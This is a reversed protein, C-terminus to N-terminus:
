LQEKHRSPLKAKVSSLRAELERRKQALAEEEAVLAYAKQYFDYASMLHENKKRAALKTKQALEEEALGQAILKDVQAQLTRIREEQLRIDKQAIKEAQTAIVKANQERLSEQLALQDKLSIVEDTLQNVQKQLAIIELEKAQLDTKLQNIIGRLGAVQAGNTAEQNALLQELVEIRDNSARVYRQLGEIKSLIDSRKRAGKERKILTNLEYQELNVSDLTENLLVMLSDMEQNARAQQIYKQLLAEKEQNLREERTNCAVLGLIPILIFPFFIPLSKM